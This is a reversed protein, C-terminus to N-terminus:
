TLVVKKNGGFMLPNGFFGNNNLYWKLWMVDFQTQSNDQWTTVTCQIENKENRMIKKKYFPVPM